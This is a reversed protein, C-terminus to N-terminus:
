LAANVVTEEQNANEKITHLIKTDVYEIAAKVAGVIAPVLSEVFWKYINRLVNTVAKVSVSAANGVLNVTKSRLEATANWVTNFVFVGIGIAAFLSLFGSFMYAVTAGLMASLYGVILVSAVIGVIRILRFASTESISGEAARAAIQEATIASCTGVTIEEVTATVPIEDLIGNKADVYAIMSSIAMYEATAAGGQLLFRIYDKEDALGEMSDAMKGMQMLLLGSQKLGNVVINRLEQELEETVSGPDLTFSDARSIYEDVNLMDESIYEAVTLNNLVNVAHILHNYINCREELSKGETMEDLKGLIWVEENEFAKKLENEYTEVLEIVRDAMMMGQEETKDPMGKVYIDALAKRVSVGKDVSKVADAAQERIRKRSMESFEMM